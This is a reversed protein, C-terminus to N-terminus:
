FDENSDFNAWSVLENNITKGIIIIHLPNSTDMNELIFNEAGSQVILSEGNKIILIYESINPTSTIDVAYDDNNKGIINVSLYEQNADVQLCSFHPIGYTYSNSKTSIPKPGFGNLSFCDDDSPRSLLETLAHHTFEQGCINIHHTPSSIGLFGIAPRHIITSHEQSMGGLQSRLSVIGDSEDNVFLHKLIYESKNNSMFFQGANVISNVPNATRRNVIVAGSPVTSLAFDIYSSFSHIPIGKTEKSYIGNLDAIAESDTTLDRFAGMAESNYLTIIAGIGLKIRWDGGISIKNLAPILDNRGWDALESGYHPTNITIIRNVGKRNINQCYLRSLIGGMSYGVLDYRSSVIGQSLLREYLETLNNSIINNKYTNNQFSNTGNMVFSAIQIDNRDFGKSCMYDVMDEYFSEGAGFLGAIFAVGPRHVVLQPLTHIRYANNTYDKLKITFDVSLIYSSENQTSNYSEPATYAFRYYAGDAIEVPELTGTISKDDVIENNLYFTPTISEVDEIREDIQILLQSEGDATVGNAPIGIDENGKFGQLVTSSADGIAIDGKHLRIKQIEISGSFSVEMETDSIWRLLKIDGGRECISYGIPGHLDKWGYAWDHWGFRRLGNQIVILNPKSGYIVDAPIVGADDGFFIFNHFFTVSFNGDDSIWTGKMQGISGWEPTPELVECSTFGTLITIINFLWLISTNIKRNM